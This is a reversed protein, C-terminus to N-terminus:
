IGKQPFRVTITTGVNVESELSITAHHYAAGHKVISLGLGTGGSERSHSKDVRYFREFVRDRDAFPIGIGTDAVSLVVSEATNKVTVTVSGHERNYRIANDCLNYVIEDLVRKAGHIVAPECDTRITLGRADAEGQLRGVVDETLVALDVDEMTLTGDESEDLRSLEIVDGILAILRQAENYINGAFRQTDEPRVIGNKMIEAFGSISTLPTKLEHSVNASFERRFQERQQRETVDVILLVAGAIENDQMVPNAILQYLRDNHPMIRESPKGALAMSVASRFQESRNLTLVSEGEAPATTDLMNLAGSNYLLVNTRPDIVLFGEHMNETIAAFEQQKHRLEDMQRRIQRQQMALRRLLPTLEEYTDLQEPNEFDLENIPRVISRSLKSALVLSLIVALVIILLLPPLMGLALVLVTYRTNSLRLVTGDELRLAYNLTHESLTRSTRSSEGVGTELAEAIEERDLHNDLTAADVTSDYLVTGDKDVWTIRNNPSSLSQLYSMGNLRVGESIYTAENRVEKLYADTFYDYLVWMILVLSAALVTFAVLSISRFIRKTM